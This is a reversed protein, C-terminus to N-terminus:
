KIAEFMAKSYEEIQYFNLIDYKKLVKSFYNIVDSNEIKKNSRETEKLGERSRIWPMEAHTINELTKANYCGFNDIVASILQKENETLLEDSSSKVNNIPNFTFNKFQYYISPFVPGHIWGEMKEEFMPTGYFALNFSQIYYLIKQLLLPTVEFPTSLIINVVNMLKSDNSRVNISKELCGQNIDGNSFANSLLEYYYDSDNLVKYLKDSYEKKPIYGAIYRTITLEGFGLVKSLNRKGIDYKTTILKIEEISIINNKKKYEEYLKKNELDVLEEIEIEENCTNCFARESFFTFENGKLMRTVKVTQINYNKLELCETCFVKENRTM